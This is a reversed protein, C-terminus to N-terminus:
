ELMMVSVEEIDYIWEVIEILFELRNELKSVSEKPKYEDKKISLGISKHTFDTLNCNEGSFKLLKTLNVKYEGKSRFIIYEGKFLIYEEGKSNKFKSVIYGFKIEIDKYMCTISKKTEISSAINAKIYQDFRLEELTFKSGNYDLLDIKFKHLIAKVKHKEYEMNKNNQNINSKGKIEKLLNILIVIALIHIIITLIITVERTYTNIENYNHIFIHYATLSVIFILSLLYLKYTGRYKFNNDM